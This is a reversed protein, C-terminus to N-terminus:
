NVRRGDFDKGLIITFDTKSSSDLGSSTDQIEDVIINDCNIFDGLAKVVDKNDIHDIIVTKEYDNRDANKSPLVNYGIGQLLISTNRALGQVSTGNLIELEYTRSFAMENEMILTQMSVKCSDKVLQGDYYPFLLDIGDVSKTYGSITQPALKESDISSLEELLRKLHKKEINTTLFKSLETMVRKSSIRESKENLTGLLSVVVNQAREQVDFYTENEESYYLYSYVKDADLRVSGSPLLFIEDETRIDIPSPIFLRLGGVFDVLELLQSISIEITFPIRVSNGSTKTKEFFLDEVEKRYLGMGKELYIDGIPATRDISAWINGTRDPIHFMASRKTGPYFMLLDSAIIKKDDHLVFLVNLIQENELLDDIPNTKLSFFLIFAVTVLVALSIILFLYSQERIKKIKGSM